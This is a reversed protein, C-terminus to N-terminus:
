HENAPDGMALSGSGAEEPTRVAMFFLLLASPWLQLLLRDLSSDLLRALEDAMSVFVMFHGALLIALAIAGARVWRRGADVRSVGLALLYATLVWVASGFGNAGFSAIHYIYERVVLFYRDPATLRGLTREVGLTSLLDNAPACAIKFTV